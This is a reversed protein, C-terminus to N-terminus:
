GDNQQVRIIRFITLLILLVSMAVPILHQTFPRYWPITQLNSRLEQEPYAELLSHIQEFAHYKGDLEASDHHQHNWQSDSLDRSDSRPGLHLHWDDVNEVFILIGFEWGGFHADRYLHAGDDFEYECLGFHLKPPSRGADHFEAPITPSKYPLFLDNWTPKEYQPPQTWVMVTAVFTTAIM